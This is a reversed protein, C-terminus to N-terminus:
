ALTMLAQLESAPSVIELFITELPPLAFSIVTLLIRVLSNVVPLSPAM